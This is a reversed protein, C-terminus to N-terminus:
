PSVGPFYDWASDSSFYDTPIALNINQANEATSTATTIGMLYGGKLSFLGGGSNGPSIPASTRIRMHNGFQDLRSVIGNTVSEGKGLANGIAMCQQGPTIERLSLLPMAWQDAEQSSRLRLLALDMGNKGYALVDVSLARNELNIMCAYHDAGSPPEVVHRNTVLRCEGSKVSMLVASGACGNDQKFFLLFPERWSTRVEVVAPGVIQFLEQPTYERLTDRKEEPPSKATVDPTSHRSERIDWLGMAFVAAIGIAVPVIWSRKPYTRPLNKRFYNIQTLGLIPFWLCGYALATAIWYKLASPSLELLPENICLWYFAAFAWAMAGRWHKKLIHWNLAVFASSFIFGFPVILISIVIPNWLAPRSPETPPYAEPQTNM